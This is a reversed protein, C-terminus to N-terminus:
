DTYTIRIKARSFGTDNFGPDDFTGGTLRYLDIFGARIFHGGHRKNDATGTGPGNALDIYGSNADNRVMVTVSTIKTIDIAHPVSIVGDLVMNWDGTNIMKVKEGIHDDSSNFKKLLALILQFGNTQNDPLDNPAIGAINMLKEFFQHIDGHTQVDAPFGNGSGDDDRPKGFPYTADAPDVNPKSLLKIMIVRLKYVSVRYV